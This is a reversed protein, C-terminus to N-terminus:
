NILIWKWIFASLSKITKIRSLLMVQMSARFINFSFYQCLRQSVSPIYNPLGESLKISIPGKQLPCQKNIQTILDCFDLSEDVIPIVGYNLKLAVEGSTVEEETTFPQMFCHCM